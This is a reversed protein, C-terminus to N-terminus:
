DNTGLALRCRETFRSTAEEMQARTLQERDFAHVAGLFAKLDAMLADNCHLRGLEGARRLVRLDDESRSASLRYRGAHLVDIFFEVAERSYYPEPHGLLRPQREVDARKRLLKM